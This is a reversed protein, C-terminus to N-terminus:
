EESWKENQALDDYENYIQGDPMIRWIQISNNHYLHGLGYKISWDQRQPQVNNKSDTARSEISCEEGNWIWNYRFRVPSLKQNAGDIHATNWTKGKDTSVEVKKIKGLGSWALGTIHVPGKKLPIAGATPQTIVSKVEMPFTFQLAKGNALLDSYKSTEDKTYTPKKTLKIRRLWKISINGEWGPVVLRIPYGQEPRIREGNQYLAILTDDLAKELPISRSMAGADAGEALLWLADKKIGAEKLINKLPVGTWESTSMLGHISGCTRDIAIPFANSNYFSNGGCEIFYTKTEMPYKLLDEIKFVLPTEVLGHILLEHQRADINPVGNHSREFHLGNPTIIGELKELPTMAVGAGPAYEEYPQFIERKTNIEQSSPLGYENFSEGPTKMWAPSGENISQAFSSAPIVSIATGSLLARRTLGKIKKM